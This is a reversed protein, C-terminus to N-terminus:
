FICATPWNAPPTACSKLLRNVAIIPKQSKNNCFCPGSSGDNSSIWCMRWFAFRAVFKTRCNSANERFCVNSGTRNSTDSSKLSSDLKSLRRIPSVTSKSISCPFARGATLTSRPCNSWTIILKATFARSAM